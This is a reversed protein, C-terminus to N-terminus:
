FFSLAWRYLIWSTFKQQAHKKKGFRVYLIILLLASWLFFGSIDCVVSSYVSTNLCLSLHAESEHSTFPLTLTRLAPLHKLHGLHIGLTISDLTQPQSCLPSLLLPSRAPSAISSSSFLPFASVLSSVVSCCPLRISCQGLLRSERAKVGLVQLFLFSLFVADVHSWTLLRKVQFEPLILSFPVSFFLNASIIASINRFKIFITLRCFWFERCVWFRLCICLCIDLSQLIVYSFFLSLSPM